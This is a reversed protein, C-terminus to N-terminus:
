PSTREWELPPLKERFAFRLLHDEVIFCARAIGEASDGEIAIDLGTPDARFRTLGGPLAAQGQDADCQAAVKHAFHKCLQQLYASARATPVRARACFAGPNTRDPATFGGPDTPDPARAAGPKAQGDEM